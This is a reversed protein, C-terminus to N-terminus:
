PQVLDVPNLMELQPPSALLNTIIVAAVASAIIVMPLMILWKINLEKSQRLRIRLNTEVITDILSPSINSSVWNAITSIDISSRPLGVGQIKLTCATCDQIHVKKTEDTMSNFEIQEEHIKTWTLFDQLDTINLIQTRKEWEIEQKKENIHQIFYEVPIKELEKMALLFRPDATTALQDYCIALPVRGARTPFISNNATIFYGTGKGTPRLSGQNYTATVVNAIKDRGIQILVIQSRLKAMLFVLAPGRIM